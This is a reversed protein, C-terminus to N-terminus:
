KVYEGILKLIRDVGKDDLKGAKSMSLRQQRDDLLYRVSKFLQAIDMTKEDLRQTTGKESWFSTNSVKHPELAISISPVGMVALEYLMVGGCIVLDSYFVTVLCVPLM